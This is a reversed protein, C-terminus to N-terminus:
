ESYTDEDQGDTKSEKKNSDSLTQKRNYIPTKQKKIIADFLDNNLSRNALIDCKDLKGIQHGDLYNAIRVNAGAIKDIDGAVKQIDTKADIIFDQRSLKNYTVTRQYEKKRNLDPRIYSVNLIVQPFFPESITNGSIAVAGKVMEKPFLQFTKNFLDDLNLTNNYGNGRIETINIHIDVAEVGGTNEVILYLVSNEDILSMSLLPEKSEMHQVQIQHNQYLSLFGLSVTGIFAEFGAVYTLVDGASWKSQLWEFSIDISYLIHVVILPVIFILICILLVYVKHDKLFNLLKTM